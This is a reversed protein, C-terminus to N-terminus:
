KEEKIGLTREFSRFMRDVHEEPTAEPATAPATEPEKAPHLQAWLEANAKQYEGIKMSYDSEIRDLREKLQEILIDKEGKPEPTQTPDDM